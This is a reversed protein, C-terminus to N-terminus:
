SLLECCLEPRLQILLQATRTFVGSAVQERFCVVRPDDEVEPKIEGVTSDIPLPHAVVADKRLLKLVSNDVTLFDKKGNQSFLKRACLMLRSFFRANEYEKQARIVYVGDVQRAFERLDNGEVFNVNHRRLYDKIDDRMRSGDSSVLALTVNNFKGFHYCLSRAVRGNKLDGVMAFCKGDIGGLLENFTFIDLNAQTPHQGPGDGANIIPVKSVAAAREAAGEEHHRLVIVGANPAHFYNNWTMITHRLSEGKKASSFERANETDFMIEGGAYSMVTQFSGRTRTSPQYFLLVMKKGALMTSGGALFIQKMRRSLPFLVKELWERSFQQSRIVHPWGDFKVNEIRM